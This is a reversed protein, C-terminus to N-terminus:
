SRFCWPLPLTSSKRCDALVCFTLARHLTAFPKTPEQFVVRAFGCSNKSGVVVRGVGIARPRGRRPWLIEAVCLANLSCPWRQDRRPLPCLSRGAYATSDHVSEKPAPLVRTSGGRMPQLPAPQLNEPTWVSRVKAMTYLLLPLRPRHRRFFAHCAPAARRVVHAHNGCRKSMCELPLSVAFAHTKEQYKLLHLRHAFSAVLENIKIM